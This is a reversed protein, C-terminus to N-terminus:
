EDDELDKRGTPVPTSPLAPAVSTGWGLSLATPLAVSVAKQCGREDVWRDLARSVGPLGHARVAAELAALDLPVQDPNPGTSPCREWYRELTPDLCGAESAVMGEYRRLQAVEAVVEFRQMADRDVRLTEGCAGVVVDGGRPLQDDVTLLYWRSRDPTRLVWPAPEPAQAGAAVAWLQILLGVM